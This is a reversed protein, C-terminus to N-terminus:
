SSTGVVKNVLQYFYGGTWIDLAAVDSLFPKVDAKAKEFDVLDVRTHLNLIYLDLESEL